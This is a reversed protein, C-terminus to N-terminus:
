WTASLFITRCSAPSLQFDRGSRSWLMCILFGGFIHSSNGFFRRMWPFRQSAQSQAQKVVM